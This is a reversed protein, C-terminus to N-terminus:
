YFESLSINPSLRSDKLKETIYSNLKFTSLLKNILLAKTVFSANNVGVSISNNTAISNCIIGQILSGFTNYIM